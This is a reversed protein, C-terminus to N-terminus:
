RGSVIALYSNVDQSSNRLYIGMVRNKYVTNGTVHSCGGSCLPSNTVAIPYWTARGFSRRHAKVPIFAMSVDQASSITVLNYGGPVATIGDFHTVLAPANGFRYYRPKGFAGTRENYAMLFGRQTRRASSGGALTYRPSADGGNQWIGYLTTKSSLNGGLRLLTWQQRAMNYIFANGSALGGRLTPNLDYNGVVLDGMTSHAITDMVLCHHRSKPCARVHGVTHAGDAPVDISKWSGGSGTVPGLYIMGQDHVGTPASSSVYSGVARVEGSPITKPNFSHTDPGYFTASTVGPFPPTLVSVAAGKATTTLPGEYLFPGTQTGGGAPASGTLVVKGDATGRVGTVIDGTKLISTISGTRNANHRGAQSAAAPMAAALLLAVVAGSSVMLIGQATKM